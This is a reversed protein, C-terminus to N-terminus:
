SKKLFNGWGKSERQAIKLLPETRTTASVIVLDRGSCVTICFEIENENTIEAPIFIMVTENNETVSVVQEWGEESLRQHSSRFLEVREDESPIRDLEYVGVSTRRVAQLAERAEPPIDDIFNTVFRGIGLIGPGVSFQVKTQVDIDTSDVFSVRLESAEDSLFFVRSVEVAVVVTMAAMSILFWHVFRFRRRPAPPINSNNTM